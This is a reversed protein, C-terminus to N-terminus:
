MLTKRISSNLPALTMAVPVLKIGSNSIVASAVPHLVASLQIDVQLAGLFLIEVAAVM